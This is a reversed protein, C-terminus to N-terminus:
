GRKWEEEKPDDIEPRKSWVDAIREKWGLKEGMQRKNVEAMLKENEDILKKSEDRLVKNELLIGEAKTILYEAVADQLNKFATELVTFSSDENWNKEPTTSAYSVQSRVAKRAYKGGKKRQVLGPANRHVMSCATGVPIDLQLGIEKYSFGQARMSVAKQQIERSHHKGPM